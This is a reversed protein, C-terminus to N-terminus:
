DAEPKLSERMSFAFAKESFLPKVQEWTNRFLDSQRYAELSAANEWHSYTIFCGPVDADEYLRLETCGPFTSIRPYGNWFIRKFTAAKEPQISLRVVRIIM